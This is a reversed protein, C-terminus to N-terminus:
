SKQNDSSSDDDLNVIQGNFFEVINRIALEEPSKASYGSSPNAISPNPQPPAPQNGEPHTSGSGPKPTPRDSKRDSTPPVSSQPPPAIDQSIAISPTTSSSNAPTTSPTVSPSATMTKKATAKAGVVAFQVQMPRKFVKECSKAIEERKPEAIKKLAPNKLGITVTTETVEVFRGHEALLGRAAPLLISVLEQWSAELDPTLEPVSESVETPIGPDITLNNELIATPIAPISSTSPQPTSAIPPTLSIPPPPTAITPSTPTPKSPSSQPTIPPPLAIASRPTVNSVAAIASPLLGLLTVELWLRPQTTNKIQVEASRLHQQGALIQSIPLAVALQQLREWGAATLAVLDRRDSATKAILLDRYFGALSQLVILPERGRDMIRRVQELIQTSNDQAIAELLALLDREPVSGVLDWVAEVTIEGELLSLQDLLSEADRLGGQAIQSVLTIAELQIPISEINAIKQLHSVMAELPIRRFDFRQCRSIITPLVRQPDTTALIFVVRDPPEELTKLLANFAATSLMHCNHVLLGNAVFNHNGEVEIDYVRETTNITVLEVEELNTTWQPFQINNSTQFGNKAPIQTWIPITTPSKEGQKEIAEQLQRIGLEQLGIPLLKIKQLQTDKLVYIFTQPIGLVLFRETMWTGGHWVKPLLKVLGNWLYSRARGILTLPKFSMKSSPTVPQEVVSLYTELDKTQPLELNQDYSQSIAQKTHWGNMSSKATLGPWDPFDVTNTPTVSPAMVSYLEMSLDWHKQTSLERMPLLNQLAITGFAMGKDTHIDQGTLNFVRLERERKNYFIQSIWSKMAGVLVSLNLLNQKNSFLNLTMHKKDSNIGTSSIDELLDVSVDIQAMNSYLCEAVVPVPSLIKMGEKVNKAQIWGTNTRILHNATCDIERNTTKITLTQRLGQDLWRLVKKYEWINLVDNYSLVKKDKITPDDIRVYGNSTLVLSEGTLCEDIAYVKYRAQVPAFQAREILERINDVGTNSAADIETIDLANGVTVGHCLDCKGCPTPTPVDYSRCNLSKAMIRATSTKGTGRAGTLLYAPAIRQTKIANTLTTAIAEQGVLDAFTQPRYKHHLPEYGMKIM